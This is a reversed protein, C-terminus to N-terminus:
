VSGLGTSYQQVYDALDAETPALEGFLLALLAHMGEAEIIRQGNDLVHVTLEVPGVNFKGSRIARPLNDDTM